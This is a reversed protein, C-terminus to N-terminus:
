FKKRFIFSSKISNVFEYSLKGIFLLLSLCNSNFSNLKVLLSIFSSKLSAYDESNGVRWRRGEVGGFFVEFLNYPFLPYFSKEFLVYLTFYCPM